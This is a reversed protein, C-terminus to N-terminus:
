LHNLREDGAATLKNISAITLLSNGEQPSASIATERLGSPSKGVRKDTQFSLQGDTLVGVVMPLVFSALSALSNDVGFLTGSFNPSLDTHNTMSSITVAGNFFLGVCFLTVARQWECGSYALWLLVVSPVFMSFACAIKRSAFISIYNRSTAFDCLTSWVIAGVYRSIFPLASLVGNSKISFGLVNRMYTPLQVFFFTIGWNNGWSHVCVAWVPVSTFISRWPVSKQVSGETQALHTGREQVTTTIYAVEAESIRPHQSPFDYVLTFWAVCWLVSPLATLYFTMEWGYRDILFGCLPLTIAISFTSAAIVTSPRELPPIWRSVLPHMSPWSMGQCAGQIVRLAIFFGYHLRAAVPSLFTIIAGALICFGFVRRTGFLEAARGGPVQQTQLTSNSTNNHHADVEEPDQTSNLYTHCVPLFSPDSGDGDRGRVMAVILISLNIRVM